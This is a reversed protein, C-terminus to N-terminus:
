HLAAVDHLPISSVGSTRVADGVPNAPTWSFASEIQARPASLAEGVDRGCRVVPVPLAALLADFAGRDKEIDGADVVVVRKVRKKYEDITGPLQGSKRPWTAPASLVVVAETSFTIANRLMAEPLSTDTPRQITRVFQPQGDARTRAI